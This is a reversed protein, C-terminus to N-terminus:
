LSTEALGQSRSGSSAKLQRLLGTSYANVRRELEIRKWDYVLDFLLPSTARHRFIADQFLRSQQNASGIEGMDDHGKLAADVCDQLQKLMGATDKQRRIERAFWFAIPGLPVLFRLVVDDVTLHYFAGAALSVIVFVTVIFILLGELCKLYTQRLNGDYWVNVRQCVYRAREFSLDGTDASYWTLFAADREVSVRKEAETMFVDDNPWEGAVLSNWPLRLVTTDFREQLQATLKVRAKNRPDLYTIDILTAAFAVLGTWPQLRPAWHGLSLSAVPLLVALWFYLGQLRKVEGLM